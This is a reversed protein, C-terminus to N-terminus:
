VSEKVPVYAYSICEGHNYMEIEQAGNDNITYGEREMMERICGFLEWVDCEDKNLLYRANEKTCPVRIYLSSPMEYMAYRSDQTKDAVEQGFFMGRPVAGNQWYDISICADWGPNVLHRKPIDTMSQYQQLLTGIDPEDTLNTAYGLTGVWISANREVLEFTANKYTYAKLFHENQLIPNTM